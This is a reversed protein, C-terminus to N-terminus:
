LIDELVDLITCPTVTNRVLLDFLSLARVRNRTIDYATKEHSCSDKTSSVTVSYITGFEGSGRSEWLIYDITYGDAKRTEKRICKKPEQETLQKVSRERM